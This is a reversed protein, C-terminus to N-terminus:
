VLLLWHQVDAPHQATIGVDSLFEPSASFFAVLNARATTEAAAYGASGPTLNALFPTFVHALYWDVAGAEPPRHLLNQYTDTILQGDGAATDAYNHVSNGTYEPSAMFYTALTMLSLGPNAKLAAEYFSLGAVDPLRGFVAGYLEAINGITVTGTGPAQTVIETYDAFKLATFDSLRDTAGNMTVIATMGDGAATVSYQGADGTFVAITGRGEAALGTLSLSSTGGMTVNLTYDGSIKALADRDADLQGPSVTL